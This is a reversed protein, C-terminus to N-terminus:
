LGSMSSFGLQQLLLLRVQIMAASKHRHKEIQKLKELKAAEIRKSLLRRTM